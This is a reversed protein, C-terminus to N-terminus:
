LVVELRRSRIGFLLHVAGEITWWFKFADLFPNVMDSMVCYRCDFPARHHRGHSQPHQLIGTEQWMRIFWNCRTHSWCHIENAQSVFAFTLCWWPSQYSLVIGFVAPVITTWNRQWYGQRTFALPYAHHQQNPAGVLKGLIPWKDDVYQDEWWHFAGAILDAMLWSTLLLGITNM